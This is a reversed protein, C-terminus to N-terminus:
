SIFDTIKIEFKLVDKVKISQPRRALNYPFFLLEFMFRPHLQQLTIRALHYKRTDFKGDKM